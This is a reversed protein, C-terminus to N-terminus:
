HIDIETAEDSLGAEESEASEKLWEMFKSIGEPDNKELKRLIKDLNELQQDYSIKAESEEEVFGLREQMVIYDRIADLSEKWKGKSELNIIAKELQRYYRYRLYNKTYHGTRKIEIQSKDDIKKLDREITRLSVGLIDAIQVRSYGQPAYYMYEVLIERQKQDILKPNLERKILKKIVDFILANESMVSMPSASKHKEIKQDPRLPIVKAESQKKITKKKKDKLRGRKKKPM